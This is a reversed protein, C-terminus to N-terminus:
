VEVLVTTSRASARKFDMSRREQNGIKKWFELWFRTLRMFGLSIQRGWEEGGHHPRHLLKHVPPIAQLCARIRHEKHQDM